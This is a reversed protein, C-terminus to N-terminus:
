ESHTFAGISKDLIPITRKGHAKKLLTDTKRIYNIRDTHYNSKLTKYRFLQLIIKRM